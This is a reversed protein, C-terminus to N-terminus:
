NITSIAKKRFDGATLGTKARFFRNFYSPDEFGLFYAIEKINHNTNNLLRKAELLVRNKIYNGANEGSNDKCIGNLKKETINLQTAYHAPQRQARYEKEVM